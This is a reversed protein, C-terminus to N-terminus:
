ELVFTFIQSHSSGAFSRPLPGARTFARLADQVSADVQANGSGRTVRKETISGDPKVTLRVQVQFRKGAYDPGRPQIWNRYLAPYLVNRDYWDLDRGGQGSGGGERGSGAETAREVPKAPEVPKARAAAAAKAEAEAAAQRRMQEERETKEKAAKERAAKEAAAVRASEARAKEVREREAKEGAVKAAALRASEARRKEDAAKERAMKEQQLLRTERALRLAEEEELEMERRQREASLRELEAERLAETAQRDAAEQKRLAEKAADPLVIPSPAREKQPTEALPALVPLRAGQKELVTFFRKEQEPPLAPEVPPPPTALAVAQSGGPNEGASDRVRFWWFLVALAGVHLVLMLLFFPGFPQRDTFEPPEPDRNM